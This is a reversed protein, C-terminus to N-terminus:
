AGKFLARADQATITQLAHRENTHLPMLPGEVRLLVAETISDTYVGMVRHSFDDGLFQLLDGPLIAIVAVRRKM